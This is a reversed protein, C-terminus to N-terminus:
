QRSWPQWHDKCSLHARLLHAFQDAPVPRSFFFGQAEDCGQAKLAALEEPTEIGEAITHLKLSRAMSIIATVMAADDTGKTIQSVFTRDIKLVDLPFKRLYSLSSYGTGFDDVSVRVGIDRLKQLLSSALEAHRMLVSETVELQLSKPDMGTERLTDLLQELFRDNQFQVASVNVAMRGDTFGEERWIKSQRCAERMVWRGIPLILGCDEAVPIFQLPPIQGRTPHTWRILAEAGVIAGTKLSVIPQYHLAFESRELAHRLDEELSQREVARLNMQSTFFKFCQRGSEKAQYMATDANKILADATLGDEPYVSIGISASVHLDHQDVLHVRAVESLIRGAATAADDPVQVSQLLILFEDGGQRSVTDPARVCEQLRKAVSQLLRDGIPHGLSDNIHKFGDLDLFLLAISQKNRDAFAIAQGIRDNLLLRNPLGTLPDHEALHAIQAALARAVSADRFVLVSGAVIGDRDHIPAVTDDIFYEHKDRRVLICNAPLAGVRDQAVAKAMPNPTTIRTTADMIRFVEALPRGSAEKLDWGTLTEAVPNLFSVNGALDTCIVADGICDLTVQAREKMEFLSEEIIKREIANRLARMMERPEIQDKVLYDQAGEKMSAIATQEDAALALLVISARPASARIQRVAEQGRADALELDLLIVDFPSASLEAQAAQMSAVDTLTYSYPGQNKFMNHMVQVYDLDDEVLLVRKVALTQM